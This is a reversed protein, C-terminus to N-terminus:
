YHVSLYIVQHVEVMKIIVIWNVNEENLMLVKIYILFVVLVKLMEKIIGMYVDINVKDVDYNIGMDVKIELNEKM